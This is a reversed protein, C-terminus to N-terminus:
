DSVCKPRAQCMYSSSVSVNHFHIAISSWLLGLVLAPFDHRAEDPNIEEAIVNIDDM